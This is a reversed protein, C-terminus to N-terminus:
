VHDHEVIEALDYGKGSQEFTLYPTAQFPGSRIQGSLRFCLLEAPQRFIEIVSLNGPLTRLAFAQERCNSDSANVRQKSSPTFVGHFAKRLETSGNMAVSLNETVNRM